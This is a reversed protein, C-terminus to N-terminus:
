KEESPLAFGIGYLRMKYDGHAGKQTGLLKFGLEVLAKEDAANENISCITATFYQGKYGDGQGHKQKLLAKLSNGGSPYAAFGGVGGISQLHCGCPETTTMTSVKAERDIVLPPMKKGAYAM